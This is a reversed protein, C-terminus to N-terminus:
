GCGPQRAAGPITESYTINARLWAEASQRPRVADSRGSRQVIQQALWRAPRRAPSRRRYVHRAGVASLEDGSPRLQDGTANRMLSTASYSEGEYVVRMPRIVSIVMSQDPSNEAATYSM